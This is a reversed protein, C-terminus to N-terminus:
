ITDKAPFLGLLRIVSRKKFCHQGVWTEHLPTSSPLYGPPVEQVRSLRQAHTLTPMRLRAVM